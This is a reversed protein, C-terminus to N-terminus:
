RILRVEVGLLPGAQLWIRDATLAPLQERKALALCARDGLSLGFPKTQEIMAGAEIALHADLDVVTIPLALLVGTSEAVGAGDRTLRSMVEALNVSSISGREAIAQEAAERGQEDLLYALIVSSDLIAPMLASRGEM